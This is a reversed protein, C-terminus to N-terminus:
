KIKHLEEILNAFEQFNLQQNADSLADQPHPHVEVIIGDAGIAKAAKALPIVYKSDGAAHSPDVIVPYNVHQKLFAVAGLDLTFRMYNDFTRIGRECLIIKSNGSAEIYKASALLEEITNGFGRKLLIPKNLKAVAKLLEFNQMNRAGIQIIDVNEFLPIDLINTIECVFAVNEAIKLNNVIKMAEEKMGQFSTPYTRPKYAGGRIAKVEPFQKLFQTSVKIQNENEISCPGAFVFFENCM